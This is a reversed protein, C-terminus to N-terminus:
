KLKKSMLWDILKVKKGNEDTFTDQFVLTQIEHGKDNYIHHMAHCGSAECKLVTRLGVSPKVWSDKAGQFVWLWTQKVGSDTSGVGSIPACAAFVGPHMNVIKYAVTGGDSHGSVSLRNLDGNHKEALVGALEIVADQYPKKHFEADATGHVAQPLIVIGGPKLQGTRLLQGLGHMKGVHDWTGHFYVLISQKKATDEPIYACYHVVTGNKAKYSQLPLVDWCTYESHLGYDSIAKWLVEPHKVDGIVKGSFRKTGKLERIAKRSYASAEATDSSSAYLNVRTGNGAIKRIQEVTVWKGDAGDGLNLEKATIGRSKLEQALCCGGYGGNGVCDILIDFPHKGYEEELYEALDKAVDAWGALQFTKAFSVCLLNVDLEDYLGYKNVLQVTSDLTTQRSSAFFVVLPKGNALDNSDPTFMRFHKVMKKKGSRTLTDIAFAPSLATMVLVIVMLILAAKKM